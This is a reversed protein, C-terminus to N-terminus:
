GDKRPEMGLSSDKVMGGITDTIGRGCNSVGIVYLNHM